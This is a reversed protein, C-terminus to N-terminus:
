QKRKPGVLYEYPEADDKDLAEITKAAQYTGGIGLVLGVSRLIQAIDRGDAEDNIADEISEVSRKVMEPIQTVPSPQDQQGILFRGAPVANVAYLGLTKLLWMWAEDEDDLDPPNNRMLQDLIAPIAMIWLMRHFARVPNKKAMRSTELTQNYLVFAYTTFITIARMAGGKRQLAALDKIHGTGQSTRLINDAYEIAKDQHLGDKMGQNFAGIWTPIDVTYLQMGSIFSLAFQNWKIRLNKKVQSKQLELAL